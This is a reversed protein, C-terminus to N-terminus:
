PATGYNDFSKDKPGSSEPKQLIFKILNVIGDWIQIGRDANVDNEVWRIPSFRHLFLTTDALKLYDARQSPVKHLFKSLNM